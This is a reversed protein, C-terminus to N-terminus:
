SCSQTKQGIQCLLKQALKRRKQSKRLPRVTDMLSGNRSLRRPKGEGYAVSNLFPPIFSGAEQRAHTPVQQINSRMENSLVSSDVEAMDNRQSQEWFSIKRDAKLTSKPSCYISGTIRGMVGKSNSANVLNQSTNKSLLRLFSDLEDKRERGQM